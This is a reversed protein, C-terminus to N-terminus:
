SLDMITRKNFLDQKDRVMLPSVHLSIPKAQFPGLMAQFSLEEQIYSEVHQSNQLASAHNTETSTLLTGRDVDLPFGYELLDPLQVDWYDSLYSRWSNSNLQSRVPIRAPLFNPKGTATILAHVELDAPCVDWHVPEGMYPKLPTLPCFGFKHPQNNMINILNQKEHTAMIDCEITSSINPDYNQDLLLDLKDTTVQDCTKAAMNFNDLGNKQNENRVHCQYGDSSGNGNKNGELTYTKSPAM